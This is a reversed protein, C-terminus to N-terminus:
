KADKEDVEKVDVFMLHEHTHYAKMHADYPSNAKVIVSHSYSRGIAGIRRGKQWSVKYTKM